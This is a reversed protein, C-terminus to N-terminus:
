HNKQKKIVTNDTTDVKLEEHRLTEEATLKEKDTHKEVNVEESVFTQKSIDAKEEYIDMRAVEGERFDTENPTVAQKPNAPTRREIVVRDKEVPISARTKETEVTKGVSVEGAKQRQKNAVLKEEYLKIVGHDPSNINYLDPDLDYRYSNRDYNRKQSDSTRFANRVREEYDYDVQMNDDYEPLNEVQNKTLGQTYVRNNSYDFQCRGIPILVKKGFIWFGTDIVLYRMHGSDDMLIDHVSGVQDDNSNNQSVYVDYSKLDHGELINDQYNSDYRDIKILGM